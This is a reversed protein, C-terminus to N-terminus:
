ILERNVHFDELFDYLDKLWSKNLYCLHVILM